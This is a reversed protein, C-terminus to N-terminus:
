VKNAAQAHELSCWTKNQYHVAENEPIHVGCHACQVITITKNQGLNQNAEKKAHSARM